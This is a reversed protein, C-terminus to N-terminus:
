VDPDILMAAKLLERNKELNPLLVEMNRINAYQFTGDAPIRQTQIKLDKVLPLLELAYQIIQNNDLDTTLMPMVMWLLDNLEPISLGRCKDLLATLVRRQRDTREFDGNGIYRIRSFALAQEGTLHNMGEVLSWQGATSDDVDWNGRRNLYNAESRTLEMDVGGLKDIMDMFGGFDVEVNGNVTVGFNVALCQDLLKMGGLQYCANIRNDSYGPIQVYLDRMFSTMTLTKTQTNLTCLIMADSRQRGEGERRDQGILLFNYVHPETIIPETEGWTVDDPNVTAGTFDPNEPDTQDQLWQEYESSSMTSEQNIDVRGILSLLSEIYVTAAILLALLLALIVCLVTLATRRGKRANKKQKKV